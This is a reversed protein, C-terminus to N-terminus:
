NKPAAKPRGQEAQAKELQPSRPSSEQLPACDEQQVPKELQSACTRPVCADSTTAWSSM